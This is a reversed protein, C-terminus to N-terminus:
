VNQTEGRKPYKGSTQSAAPLNPARPNLDPHRPFPPNRRHSLPLQPRRATEPPWTQVAQGPPLLRPSVILGPRRLQSHPLPGKFKRDARRHAGERQGGARGGRRRHAAEGAHRVPRDGRAGPGRVGKNNSWLKIKQKLAISGELVRILMVVGRYNDYWSDFVLAKLPEAVGGKPPPVVKVVAELLQDINVGEKASVPVAISGDLGIVDEIEARTREVDASPLDIKNIVPIIEVDRLQLVPFGRVRTWKRGSEHTAV